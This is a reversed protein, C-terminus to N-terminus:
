KVMNNDFGQSRLDKVAVQFVSIFNKIADPLSVNKRGYKLKMGRGEYSKFAAKIEDLLKNFDADKFVKYVQEKTAKNNSKFLGEISDSAKAVKQSLADQDIAKLLDSLAYLSNSLPLLRATNFQEEELLRLKGVLDKARGM